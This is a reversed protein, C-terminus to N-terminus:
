FGKKFLEEHEEHSVAGSGIMADLLWIPPCLFHLGVRLTEQM